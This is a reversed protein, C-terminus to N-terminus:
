EQQTDIKEFFLDLIENGLCFKNPNDEAVMIVTQGEIRKVRYIQGNSKNRFRDGETNAMSHEGMRIEEETPKGRRSAIFFGHDFYVVPEMLL